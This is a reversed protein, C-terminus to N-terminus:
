FHGGLVAAVQYQDTRDMTSGNLRFADEGFGFRYSGRAGLKLGYTESVSVDVGAGVPLVLFNDDRVALNTDDARIWDWEAGGFAFPRV